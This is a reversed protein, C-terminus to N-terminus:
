QPVAGGAVARGLTDADAQHTPTDMVVAGNYFVITRDAVMMIEDLESSSFVIASGSAAQAQLHRWVWHGSGLDLGRTPNELLLVTPSAPLLSLLLRQQNGGSLAAADMGPRGKINFRSISKLAQNLATKGTMFFRDQKENLSFHESITLGPILGEEIRSAPIFAGGRKKFDHYGSGNLPEDHFTIQGRTPNTLGAAVRLFVGQGSGELGALGVIEGERITINCNNLGARGGPATIDKLTLIPKGPIAPQHVPPSPLTGFMMQLLQNVDFPATMRGSVKGQRMVTVEDCLAMVDELKHSVLLVSKGDSALQKLSAFLIEKQTRSIGTTPEDLILVRINLALLRMIELQQREGVTLRDVQADPDLTFGLQTSILILESRHSKRHSSIGSVRGIMFNDLVSLAPFDHPEQHLMGIKYQAAMAPSDIDLAHGDILTTGSTKRTFGTLIKMLTSKGAGNEGLVGHITGPRITLSVGDNARVPGYHKHINKLEIQM